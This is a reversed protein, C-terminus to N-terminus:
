SRRRALYSDFDLRIEGQPGRLLVKRLQGPAAHRCLDYLEQLTRVKHESDVSERGERRSVLVVGFPESHEDSDM